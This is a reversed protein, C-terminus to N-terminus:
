KKVNIKYLKSKKKKKPCATNLGIIAYNRKVSENHKQKNNQRM